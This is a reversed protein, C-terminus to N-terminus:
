AAKGREAAIYDTLKKATKLTVGRRRLRAVVQSDNVALRGFTTESIGAAAVFEAIEDLVHAIYRAQEMPEQNMDFEPYIHFIGNTLLFFGVRKGQHHQPIYGM